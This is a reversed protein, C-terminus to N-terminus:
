NWRFYKDYLFNIVVLILVLFGAGIIFHLVNNFIRNPDEYKAGTMKIDKISYRKKLLGLVNLLRLFLYRIREGIFGLIQAGIFDEIINL